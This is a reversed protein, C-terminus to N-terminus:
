LIKNIYSKNSMNIWSGNEFTILRSNVHIGNCLNTIKLFELGHQIIDEIKLEKVPIRTLKM